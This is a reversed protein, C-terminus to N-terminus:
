GGFSFSTAHQRFSAADQDTIQHPNYQSPASYRFALIGQRPLSMAAAEDMNDVTSSTQSMPAVESHWNAHQARMRKDAVTDILADQYNIGPSSAHHQALSDAASCDQGPDYNGGSGPSTAEQWAQRQAQDLNMSTTPGREMSERVPRPGSFSESSPPRGGARAPMVYGEKKSQAYSYGQYAVVLILVVLLVILIAESSQM